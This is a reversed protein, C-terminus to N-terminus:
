FVVTCLQAHFVESASPVSLAYRADLHIGAVWAIEDSSTLVCVFHKLHLPIKRDILLDSLKKSGTMGLPCLRDKPAPSRLLLPYRLRTADIYAHEPSTQSLTLPPKKLYRFRFKYPGFCVETAHKQVEVPLPPTQSEHPVIHLSGRDIYINHTPTEFSKGTSQPMFLSKCLAEFTVYRLGFDQLVAFLIHRQSLTHWDPPLKLSHYGSKKLLHQGTFAEKARECTAQAGRLRELSRRLPAYDAPLQKQLTPLVEKRLKNRLYSSNQNSTDERWRWSKAKALALLAAKPYYHLPRILAGRQPAVGRLAALGTGRLLQMLIGELSDDLHHATAIHTYFHSKQVNEFHQYRQLRAAAQLGGGSQAWNGTLRHLHYPFHWNESLNSVFAEDEDAEARLGHHTHAVGCRIQKPYSQQLAYFLQGMVVSDLGGSIALLIKTQGNKQLWDRMRKHFDKEIGM